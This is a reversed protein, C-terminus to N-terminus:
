GGAEFKTLIFVCLHLNDCVWHFVALRFLHVFIRYKAYFRSIRHIKKPEYENSSAIELQGKETDDDVIGNKEHPVRRLHQDEHVQDPVHSGHAKGFTTDQSYVVEDTRGAGARESHHFHQHQHEHSYHLALDPNTRVDLQSSRNHGHAPLVNHQIREGNEATVDVYESQGPAETKRSDDNHPEM